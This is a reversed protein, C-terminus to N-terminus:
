YVNPDRLSGRRNGRRHAAIWGICALGLLLCSGPEPIAAMASSASFTLVLDSGVISHTFGAAGALQLGDDLINGASLVIFSDDVSPSFSVLSIDLIGSLTAAGTVHLLDIASPDTGALEIALTAGEHLTFDGAVDFDGISSGPAVLDECGIGAAATGSDAASSASGPAFTAGGQVILNGGAGGNGGLIGEEVVTDGTNTNAGDLYWTGPGSKTISVMSGAASDSIIPTLTNADTNDGTLTLTRPVAGFVIRTR